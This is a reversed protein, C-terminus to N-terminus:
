RLELKELDIIWNNQPINVGCLKSKGQKNLDLVVGDDIQDRKLTLEAAAIRGRTLGFATLEDFETIGAKQLASLLTPGNETVGSATIQVQPLQKLDDLTIYVPQKDEFVVSIYYGEPVATGAAIQSSDGTAAAQSNTTGGAQGQADGSCGTLFLSWILALEALFITFGSKIRCTIFM